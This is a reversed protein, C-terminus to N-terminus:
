EGHSRDLYVAETRSTAGLKRLINSVHVSATKASIFLRESIQRNSLGESILDLVQRERTTLATAGGTDRVDGAAAAHGLRKELVDLRKLVFGASARVAELRADAAARLAAHQQAEAALAEAQRARAYPLLHCCVRPSDVAAAARHWTTSSDELEARVLAAYAPATPWADM